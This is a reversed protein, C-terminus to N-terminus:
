RHNFVKEMTRLSSDAVMLSRFGISQNLPALTPYTAGAPEGGDIKLDTGRAPPPASKAPWRPVWPVSDLNVTM